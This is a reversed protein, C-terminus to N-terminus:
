FIGGAGGGGGNQYDHNKHHSIFCCTHCTANVHKGGNTNKTVIQQNNITNTNKFNNSEMNNSKKTKRVQCNIILIIISADFV